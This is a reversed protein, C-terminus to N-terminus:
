RFNALMERIRPLKWSAPTTPQAGPQRIDIGEQPRVMVSRGGATVEVRGEGVLLALQGRNPGAYFRTGRVALLGYASKFSIGQTAPKGTREFMMHGAQMDFEGGTEALYRDVKLRSDAGLKITTAAGLKMVIRANNGTSLLDGVFIEGKAALKRREGNAEAFAEGRIEEISGIPTPRPQALVPAAILAGALGIGSKLVTRRGIHQNVVKVPMQM